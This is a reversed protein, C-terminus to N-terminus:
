PHRPSRADRIETGDRIKDECAPCVRAAEADPPAFVRIYDKTVFSGCNLCEPM